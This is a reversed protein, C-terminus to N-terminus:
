VGYCDFLRQFEAGEDSKYFDDLAKEEAVRVAGESMTAAELKCRKAELELYREMTM